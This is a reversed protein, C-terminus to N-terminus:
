PNVEPAAALVLPYVTAGFREAWRDAADKTHFLQWREGDKFAWAVPVAQAPQAQPTAAGIGHAREVARTVLEFDSLSITNDTPENFHRWEYEIQEDTLPVAQVAQAPQAGYKPSACVLCERSTLGHSCKSM